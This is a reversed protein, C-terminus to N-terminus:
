RARTRDAANKGATTIATAGAKNRKLYGRAILGEVTDASVNRRRLEDRRYEGGKIGYFCYLAQQETDSTGEDQGSPLFRGLGTRNMYVTAFTRPYGTTGRVVAGNDPLPANSTSDDVVSQVFMNSGGWSGQMSKREGTDLNLLLAFGRQGKNGECRLEVTDAVIVEIDRGGYRVSELAQRVVPSLEKVDVYM